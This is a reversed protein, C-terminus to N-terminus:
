KLTILFAVLQDIQEESLGLNPMGQNNEPDMPKVDEPNRLWRKLNNTNPKGENEVVPKPVDQYLDLLNAAFTDRMMLHTLNPATKNTLTSGVKVGYAEVPEDAYEYLGDANPESEPTIGNIQHCRACQGVFLAQGAKALESEPQDPATTMREIWEEYDPASLAKVQMRMVGHSLGCFETCQGEYIGPKNATMVLDQTHGPVADKKGNLAPIWFSHIVDNSQIRLKVDRGAPIVMQTATIIDNKGDGNTDYQYQWWWQQGEVTVTLADSSADDLELITQVNFVALVALILAPVITWGIELPTKGHQQVPEDVGDEDDSHRRFRAFLWILGVEIIIFVIGAVIFVPVALNHIEQSQKGRPNLTNLPFIEANTMGRLLLYGGGICVIVGVIAAITANRKNRM